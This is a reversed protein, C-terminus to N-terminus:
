HGNVGPRPGDHAVGVRTSPEPAYRGPTRLHSEGIPLGTESAGDDPRRKAAIIAQEFQDTTNM